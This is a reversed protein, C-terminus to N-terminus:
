TSMNGVFIVDLKATKLDDFGCVSCQVYFQNRSSFNFLFTVDEYFSTLPRFM